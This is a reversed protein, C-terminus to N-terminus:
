KRSNESMRITVKGVEGKETNVVTRSGGPAGGEWKGARIAPVRSNGERTGGPGSHQGHDWQVRRTETTM